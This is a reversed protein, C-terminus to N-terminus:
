DWPIAMLTAQCTDCMPVSLPSGEWWRLGMAFDLSQIPSQTESSGKAGVRRNSTQPGPIGVRIFALGPGVRDTTRLPQILLAANGERAWPGQRPNAWCGEAM